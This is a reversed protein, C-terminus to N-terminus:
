CYDFVLCNGAGRCCDIGDFHRDSKGPEPDDIVQSFVSFSIGVIMLMTLLNGILILKVKKM